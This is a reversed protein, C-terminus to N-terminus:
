RHWTPRIVQELLEKAADRGRGRDGLLDLYVQTPSAVRVGEIERSGYFVGADYPKLLLVNSGGTVEKLNLLAGVDEDSEEVYAMVRHYRVFPAMRDAGSFGTLAYKIGKEGLVDAIQAEVEPVTISCYFERVLNKRYTYNEAWETLLVEAEVLQFGAAQEAIWERDGLLKKVKSVLGVSVEVEKALPQIRWITKPASLLVRLIRSAKPSYLSRLDRKESFPNPSGKREIHVGGFSLRCNGALDIYGIGDEACIDAARPSIYPAAVVGYAEPKMELYRLLQNVANRVLRPQGPNTYEVIIVQDGGSYPLKFILDPHTEGQKAKEPIPAGEVFPVDRVCTALADLIKSRVQGRLAKM